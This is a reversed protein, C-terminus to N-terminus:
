GHPAHGDDGELGRLATRALGARYQRDSHTHHNAWKLRRRRDDESATRGDSASRTVSEVKASNMARCASDKLRAPRAVRADNGGSFASPCASNSAKRVRLFYATM